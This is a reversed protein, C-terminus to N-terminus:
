EWEDVIINAHSVDGDLLVDRFTFIMAPPGSLLYVPNHLSVSHHIVDKIDLMGVHVAYPLMDAATDDIQEVYVHTYIATSQRCRQLMDEFVIYEKSRVGYWLHIDREGTTHLAHEIYAIFPSIGTGGAVLVLPQTSETIADIVFDGYPLKLWVAKGIVLERAMRKTYEGKISYLISLQTSNPPSCISFVRSEPWFAETPDFNDLALHLFQGAKFRPFPSPSEFDVRYVHEGYQTIDQITAQLTRQM